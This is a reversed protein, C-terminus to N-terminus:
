LIRNQLEEGEQKHLHGTAHEDPAWMHPPKDFIGRKFGIIGLSGEDMGLDGLPPM